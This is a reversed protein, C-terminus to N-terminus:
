RPTSHKKLGSRYRWVTYGLGLVAFVYLLVVEATEIIKLPDYWAGKYYLCLLDIATVALMMAILPKIHGVVDKLLRKLVIPRWLAHNFIVKKDRSM